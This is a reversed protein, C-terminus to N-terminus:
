FFALGAWIGRWVMVAHAALCAAVALLSAQLILMAPFSGGGAFLLVARFAAALPRRLAWPTWTGQQAEFFAEVLHGNADSCPVLGGINAWHPDGARVIGAWMAALGMLLAAAAIPLGGWRLVIGLKTNRTAAMEARSPDASLWTTLTGIAAIGL